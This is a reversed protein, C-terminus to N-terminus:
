GEEDEAFGPLPAGQDIIETLRERAEDATTFDHPDTSPATCELWTTTWGGARESPVHGVREWWVWCLRWVGPRVELPRLALDKGHM